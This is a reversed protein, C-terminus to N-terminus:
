KVEYDSRSAASSLDSGTMTSVWQTLRYYANPSCGTIGKGKKQLERKVGRTGTGKGGLGRGKM